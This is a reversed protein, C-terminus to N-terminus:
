NRSLYMLSKCTVLIRKSYFMDIFYYCNWLQTRVYLLSYVILLLSVRENFCVSRARIQSICPRGRSHNSQFALVIHVFHLSGILKIYM